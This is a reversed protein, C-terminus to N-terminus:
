FGRKAWYEIRKREIEIPDLIPQPELAPEPSTLLYPRLYRAVFALVIMLNFALLKWPTFVATMPDDGNLFLLAVEVLGILLTLLLVFYAMLIRRATPNLQNNASM